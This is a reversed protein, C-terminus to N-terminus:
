PTFGALEYLSSTAIRYNGAFADYVDRDLDENYHRNFLSSYRLSIMWNGNVQYEQIYEFDGPHFKKTESDGETFFIWEGSEDDKLLLTGDHLVGLLRGELAQGAVNIRDASTTTNPANDQGRTWAFTHFVNEAEKFLSLYSRSGTGPNGNATVYFGRRRYNVFNYNGTQMYTLHTTGGMAISASPSFGERIDFDPPPDFDLFTEYIGPASGGNVIYLLFIKNDKAHSLDNGIFEYGDVPALTFNLEGTDATDTSILHSALHSFGRYPINIDGAYTANDYAYGSYLGYNPFVGGDFQALLVGGYTGDTLPMIGSGWRDSNNSDEIRYYLQEQSFSLNAGGGGSFLDSLFGWSEDAIAPPGANLRNNTFDAFSPYHQREHDHGQSFAYFVQRPNNQPPAWGSIAITDEDIYDYYVFDHVTMEAVPTLHRLFAYSQSSGPLLFPIGCASIIGILAVISSVTILLATTKKM